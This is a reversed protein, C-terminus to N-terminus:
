SDWHKRLIYNAAGEGVHQKGNKDLQRLQNEAVFYASLTGKVGILTIVSGDKNWTYRGKQVITEANEKLPTIHLIYERETLVVRINVTKNDYGPIIGTYTGQYDLSNRANHADIVQEKVDSIAKENSNQTSSSCGFLVSILFIMWWSQKM